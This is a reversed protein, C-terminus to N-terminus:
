CVSPGAGDAGTVGSTGPAMTGPPEGAAIVPGMAGAVM